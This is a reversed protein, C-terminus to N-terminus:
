KMELQAVRVEFDDAVEAGHVLHKDLEAFETDISEGVSIAKLMAKTADVWSQGLPDGKRHLTQGPEIGDLACAGEDTEDRTGQDRMHVSYM